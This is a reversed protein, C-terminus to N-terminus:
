GKLVTYYFLRGADDSHSDIWRRLKGRSVLRFIAFEATWESFGALEAIEARSIPQERDIRHLQDIAKLVALEYFDLGAPATRIM